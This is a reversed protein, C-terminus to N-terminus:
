INRSSNYRMQIVDKCVQAFPSATEKMITSNLTKQSLSNSKSYNIIKGNRNCYKRKQRLCTSLIANIKYSDVNFTM